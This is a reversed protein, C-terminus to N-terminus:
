KVLFYKCNSNEQRVVEMFSISGHGYVYHKCHVGDSKFCIMNGCERCNANKPKVKKVVQVEKSKSYLPRLKFDNEKDKKRM